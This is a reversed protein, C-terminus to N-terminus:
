PLIEIMLLLPFPVVTEMLKGIRLIQISISELNKQHASM